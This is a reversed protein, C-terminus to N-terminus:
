KKTALRYHLQLQFLIPADLQAFTDILRTGMSNCQKATRYIQPGSFMSVFVLRPVSLCEMDSREYATQSIQSTFLHSKM